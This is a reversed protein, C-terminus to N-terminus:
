DVMARKKPDIPYWHAAVGKKTALYRLITHSECVVFDGEVM